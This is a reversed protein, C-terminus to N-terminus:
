SYGLTNLRPVLALRVSPEPQPVTRALLIQIFKCRIQVFQNDDEFVVLLDASGFRILQKDTKELFLALDGVLGSGLRFLSFFTLNFYLFLAFSGGQLRRIIRINGAPIFAFSVTRVNGLGAVVGALTFNNGVVFDM